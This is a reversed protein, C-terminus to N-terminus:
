CRNYLNMATNLRDAVILKIAEVARKIVANIIPQEDQHFPQLVYDVVNEQLSKKEPIDTPDPRGIGMRIRVFENTELYEIISKVGKHGGHGGQKRIRLRGVELDLDDYIVVLNEFSEQYRALIEGVAIGSRNMYTQPKILLVRQNQISTQCFHVLSDSQVGCVPFVEAIMDVVMFGVNHRTKAYRSGPNGLGVILKM